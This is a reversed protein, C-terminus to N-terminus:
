RFLSGKAQLDREKDGAVVVREEGLRADSDCAEEFAEAVGDREGDLLGAAALHVVVSAVMTFSDGEDTPEDLHEAVSFSDADRRGGTDRHHAFVVFQHSLALVIGGEEGINAAQERADELKGFKQRIPEAEFIDARVELVSHRVVRGAV